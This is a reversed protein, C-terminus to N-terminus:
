IETLVVGGTAIILGDDGDIQLVPPETDSEIEFIQATFFQYKLLLNTKSKSIKIIWVVPSGIGFINHDTRM